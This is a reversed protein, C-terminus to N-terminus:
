FSPLKLNQGKSRISNTCKVHFVWHISYVLLMHLLLWFEPCWGMLFFWRKVPRSLGIGKQNKDSLIHQMFGKQFAQFHPSSPPCWLVFEHAYMGWRCCPVSIHVWRTHTHTSRRVQGWCNGWRDSVTKETTFCSLCKKLKGSYALFFLPQFCPRSYFLHQWLFPDANVRTSEQAKFNSCIFIKFWISPLRVKWVLSFM